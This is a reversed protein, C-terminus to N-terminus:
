TEHARLHTYSVAGYYHAWGRQRAMEEANPEEFASIRFNPIPRAEKESPSARVFIPVSGTVGSISSSSFTRKPNAVLTVVEVYDSSLPVIAM